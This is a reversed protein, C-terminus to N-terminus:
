AVSQNVGNRVVSLYGSDIKFISDCSRLTSIRHAVLIITMDRGLAEMADMVLGETVDDLASTAEDLFLIKARKYLARAIGIRQRQGGSLRAGREGALTAYGDSLGDIFESIRAKEAAHRVRNMDIELPPVGFAINEALSADTLYISQPVHAIIKQWRGVEVNDILQGDVELKGSTPILLGMLIDLLTSKGSGTAGIIGIRSGRAITFSVNELVLPTKDSYRFCMMKAEIKQKFELEYLSKNAVINPTSQGLLGLADSLSKQMGSISAWAVYIQQINPLLRQAALVLMGFVPLVEILGSSRKSFAFAIISILIITVAEVLFRPSAAIINNNCQAKRLAVDAKHYASAFVEQTGDIIVDRIAGLGEQLSKILKESQSAIETSNIRLRKRTFWSISIYFGAFALTSITTIRPSVFFMAGVILISLIVANSLLLIQQLVNATGAVKGSIGLIVGSSHQAIHKIYPQYLTIKYVRECLDTGCGFAVKTMLWLLAIRFFASSIALAGFAVLILLGLQEAKEIHLVDAVQEIYEYRFIGDPNVLFTFLPLLAGISVVEAVAGIPLMVALLFLQMKRRRSIYHWLILTM